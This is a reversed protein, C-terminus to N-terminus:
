NKKAIKKKMCTGMTEKKDGFRICIDLGLDSFMNLVQICIIRKTM